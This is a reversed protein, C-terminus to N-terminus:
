ISDDTIRVSGHNDTDQENRKIGCRNRERGSTTDAYEEPSLGIRQGDHELSTSSFTLNQEEQPIATEAESMAVIASGDPDPGFAPAFDPMEDPIEEEPPARREWEEDCFM